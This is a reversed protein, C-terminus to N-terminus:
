RDSRSPAPMGPLQEIADALDEGLLLAVKKYSTQTAERLAVKAVEVILEGLRAPGWNVATPALWLNLLKGRADVTVEITNDLDRATGSAAALVGQVKSLAEQPADM